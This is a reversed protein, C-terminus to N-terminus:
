RGPPGPPASVPAPVSRRPRSRAPRQGVPLRLELQCGGWRYQAHGGDTPNKRWWFNQAAGPDATQSHAKGDPNVDAVVFVDTHELIARVDAATFTESGYRLPAGAEYRAVPQHRIGCLHGIRGMRARARRRQDPCRDPGARAWCGAAPRSTRGDWSLEPLATVSAVEPYTAALVQLASEAENPTLYRGLVAREGGPGSDRRGPTTDDPETLDTLCELRSASSAQEYTERDAERDQEVVRDLPGTAFRDVDPDV